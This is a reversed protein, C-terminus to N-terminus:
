AFRAINKVAMWYNRIYLDLEARIAQIALRRYAALAASSRRFKQLHRLDEVGLELAPNGTLNRLLLTFEEMPVFGDLDMRAVTSNLLLASLILYWHTPTTEPM